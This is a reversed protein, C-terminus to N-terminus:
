EERESQLRKNEELEETQLWPNIKLILTAYPKLVYKSPVGDVWGGVFVM